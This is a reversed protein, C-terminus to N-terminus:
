LKSLIRAKVEQWPSGPNRDARYAALRRNLEAKREPSLEFGQQEAAISDWLDQVLIVREAFSLDGFGTPESATSM